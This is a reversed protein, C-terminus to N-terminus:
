TSEGTQRGLHPERPSAHNSHLLVQVGPATPPSVDTRAGLTASSGAMFQREAELSISMPGNM